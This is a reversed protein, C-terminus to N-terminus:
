CDAIFCVTVRHWRLIDACRELHQNVGQFTASITKLTEDARKEVRLDLCDYCRKRGSIVARLQKCAPLMLLIPYLAPSSRALFYYARSRHRCEHEKQRRHGSRQPLPPVPIFRVSDGVAEREPRISSSPRPKIAAPSSDNRASCAPFSWVSVAAEASM